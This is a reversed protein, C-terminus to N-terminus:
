ESEHTPDGRRVCGGSSASCAKTLEPTLRLVENVQQSHHLVDLVPM